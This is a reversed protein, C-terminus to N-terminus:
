RPPPAGEPLAGALRVALAWALLGFVVGGAAQGLLVGEAGAIWGGALVFPVTGLTHRGWNIWTSLFPRGLNNFAANAVFIVGNFFWMLAVPGCFLYILAMAQGEAQFLAAIPARFLFLVASVVVTVLATFAMGASIAGRVRGAQGAGANQGIIPGVAGSLAFLVGFAVPILRSVVAFGAVAAEGYESMIRTVFALGVPTALQTLIAPLAIAVVPRFDAGLGALTPRVFGGHHRLVPLLAMGAIAARAAVSAMAAGALELGFGFILIPDLVANVAAGVLTATMARRADGHARLIAAGIMGIVLLPMSPTIIALYMVALDATRGTAGLLAVLEPLLVWVVASFLVSAIVGHILAHTARRRAQERDGSGVARAVLAGAAIAMGIAFSTTFFLIAAGYGIAAALEAQGLMAIFVMDALDVLFVAMLGVSSTLSMVAVHGFLSGQLFVARGPKGPGLDPPPDPTAM